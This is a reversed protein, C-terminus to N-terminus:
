DLYWKKYKKMRSKKDRLFIFNFHIMFPKTDTPKYKGYYYCGNPFLEPSLLEYNILHRYKNVYLQDNPYTGEVEFFKKTKENSRIFMFGSCIDSAESKQNKENFKYETQCLMDLTDDKLMKEYCYTIFRSDEFVIDSDIFLVFPSIDLEKRIACLKQLTVKSWNEDCYSSAGEFINGLSIIETSDDDNLTDTLDSTSKKDICYIKFPCIFNLRRLSALCNLTLNYYGFNTLTILSVNKYYNDFINDFRVPYYDDSYIKRIKCWWNVRRIIKNQSEENYCSLILSSFDYEKDIIEQYKKELYDHTIESYDKTYLVPLGMLKKEMPKNYEVIPISKFYLSEWHRHCDIENGEPSAVFKHDGIEDFFRIGICHNYFGNNKLTEIIKQRNVDANKRRRQDTESNFACLLLKSPEYDIRKQLNNYIMDQKCKVSVGIPESIMADDGLKDTKDSSANFIVDDISILEEKWRRLTMKYREHSNVNM